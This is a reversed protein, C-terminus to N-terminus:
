SRGEGFRRALERMVIEDAATTTGAGPQPPRAEAAQVLTFLLQMSRAEGAAARNVLQKITAELKTISRRRGNETVMVRENLTATIVTALNRAGRPRGRPNGSVGPQFRTSLPPRRDGVRYEEDPQVNRNRQTM